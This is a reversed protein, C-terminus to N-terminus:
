RKKLKHLWRNAEKERDINGDKLHKQLTEDVPGKSTLHYHGCEECKYVSVPGNGSSYDYRIRAEVLADVAQDHNFFIKKHTPCKNIM